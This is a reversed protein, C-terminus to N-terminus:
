SLPRYPFPLASRMWHSFFVLHRVLILFSRFVFRDFPGFDVSGCLYCVDFLRAHSLFISPRFSERVGKAQGAGAVAPRGALGAM